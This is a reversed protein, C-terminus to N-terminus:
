FKIENKVTKQALKNEFPEWKAYTMKLIFDHKDKDLTKEKIGKYGPLSIFMVRDDHTDLIEIWGYFSDYTGEIEGDYIIANFINEANLTPVYGLVEQGDYIDPVTVVYRNSLSM